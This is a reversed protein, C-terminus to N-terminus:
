TYKIWIDGNQGDGAVPDATSITVHPIVLNSIQTLATQAKTDAAVAKADAAVAKADASNAKTQATGAGTLANEATEEVDTLRQLVETLDTGEFDGPAPPTTGITGAPGDITYMGQPSIWIQSVHTGDLVHIIKYRIVNIGDANPGKDKSEFYYFGTKQTSADTLPQLAGGLGFAGVKLLREDTGDYTSTQVDRTAATGLELIDRMAEATEAKSLLNALDSADALKAEIDIVEAELDDVRSGIDVVEATIQELNAILGVVKDAEAKSDAASAASALESALAAAASAASEAASTASALASAMADLAAQVAEDRAHMANVKADIIIKIAEVDYYKTSPPPLLIIDHLWIPFDVDPVSVLEDFLKSGDPNRAVIQYEAGTTGEISPWLQLDCEGLADTTASEVTRDVFGIDRTTIGVTQLRATVTIGETLTNEPGYVRVKVTVNKM